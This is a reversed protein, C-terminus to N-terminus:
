SGAASEVHASCVEDGRARTTASALHAEPDFAAIMGRWIARDLGCIRDPDDFALAEFPCSCARLDGDGEIAAEFGYRSLLRAVEALVDTGHAPGPAGSAAQALGAQFGFEYGTRELVAQPPDGSTDRSARLLLGALLEYHREPLNVAIEAGSLRYHKAPRGAGPGSRGERRRFDADLFGEAVLKDLHFGALRREIGVTEAVRSKNLPEGADRVAFFVRRRTPDGLAAVLREIDRESSQTDAGTSLQPAGPHVPCLM